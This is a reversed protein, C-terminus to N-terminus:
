HALSQISIAFDYQLLILHEGICEIYEFVIKFHFNAGENRPRRRNSAESVLFDLNHIHILFQLIVFSDSNNIWVSLCVSIYQINKSIAIVRFNLFLIIICGFRIQLISQYSICRIGFETTTAFILLLDTM